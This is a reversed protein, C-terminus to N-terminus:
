KSYGFALVTFAKGEEGAAPKIEVTHKASAAEDIIMVDYIPQTIKDDDQKRRFDPHNQIGMTTGCVLNSSDLLFREACDKEFGKEEKVLLVDPTENLFSGKPKLVDFINNNWRDSTQKNFGPYLELSLEIDQNDFEINSKINMCSISSLERKISKINVNLFLLDVMRECEIINDGYIKINYKM